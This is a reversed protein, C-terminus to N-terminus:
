GRQFLGSLVYGGWAILFVPFIYRGVHEFPVFNGLFIMGGLLILFVGWFGARSRHSHRCCNRESPPQESFNSTTM